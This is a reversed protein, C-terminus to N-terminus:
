AAPRVPDPLAVTYGPDRFDPLSEFGAKAFLHGQYFLVGEDRFWHYEDATEVGEALVDIGLDFCVQIIARVIAQRPGRSAIGRVLLMDIKVKDPQFDALLNLGSYGAGFDDIAITMGLARYRNVIQAFRGQDEILDNELVELVIRSLPIGCHEAAEATARLPADGALLSRPLVNLNLHCGIGLRAALEIAVLRAQGDFYPMAESRISGLVFSASENAPGRVLAEYSFIAGTSMDVIPQFAFTFPPLALVSLTERPGAIEVTTAPM